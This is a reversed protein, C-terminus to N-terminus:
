DTKRRWRGMSEGMISELVHIQGDMYEGVWGHDVWKNMWVAMCRNMLCKDM